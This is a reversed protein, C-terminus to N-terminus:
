STRTEPKSFLTGVEAACDAIASPVAAITAGTSRSLIAKQDATARVRGLWKLSAPGRNSFLTGVEAARTTIASASPQRRLEPSPQQEM